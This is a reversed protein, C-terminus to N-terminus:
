TTDYFKGLGYFVVMKNKCVAIESGKKKGTYKIACSEKITSDITLDKKLSKKEQGKDKSFVVTWLPFILIELAFFERNYLTFCKLIFFIETWYIM